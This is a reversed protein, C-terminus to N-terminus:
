SVTQIDWLHTSDLQADFIKIDGDHHSKTNTLPAELKLDTQRRALFFDFHVAASCTFNGGAIDHQELVLVKKGQKALLAATSLGGM